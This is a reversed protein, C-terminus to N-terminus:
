CVFQMRDGGTEMRITFNKTYMSGSNDLRDEATGGTPPTAALGELALITGKDSCCYTNNGCSKCAIQSDRKTTTQSCRSKKKIIRVMHQEFLRNKEVVQLWPDWPGSNQM